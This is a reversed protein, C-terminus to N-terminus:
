PTPTYINHGSGTVETVTPSALGFDAALELAYYNARAEAAEMEAQSGLGSWGGFERDISHGIEHLLIFDMAETASGFNSTLIAVDPHNLDIDINYHLVDDEGMSRIMMGALGNSNDNTQLTVTSQM